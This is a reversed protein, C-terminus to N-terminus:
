ESIFSFDGTFSSETWPIQQGSTEKNVDQLVKKFVQEISLGPKKMHSLLHKTYVGNDGDGDSAVSGPSTAFGIITGKPSELRALGRSSSRFSRPLPNDRCADLIVINLNDSAEGMAGLVQGINVAKYRVDSQRNIKADTPILYNAGDIQVGHGAYYFLAVQNGSILQRSFSDIALEMQEQNADLKLTVNFGLQELTSAIARADNVPNKLPSYLYASNGIVLASKKLDSKVTNTPNIEPTLGTPNIKPKSMTNSTNEFSTVQVTHTALSQIEVNVFGENDFNGNLMDNIRFFLIGNDTAKFEFNNGVAFPIGQIGIKAILSSHSYGEIIAPVLPSKFCLPTYLGIGDPDTFNCTPYTRWKGKSTIQYNTNKSLEVGSNRWEEVSASVRTKSKANTKLPQSLVVDQYKYKPASCSYLSWSIIFILWIEHHTNKKM